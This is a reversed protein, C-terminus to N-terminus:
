YLRLLGLNHQEKCRSEELFDMKQTTACSQFQCKSAAHPSEIIPRLHQDKASNFRLISRISSLANQAMQCPVIHRRRHLLRDGKGQREDQDCGAGKVNLGNTRRM